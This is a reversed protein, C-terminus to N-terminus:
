GDLQGRVTYALSQLGNIKTDLKDKPGGTYYRSANQWHIGAKSYIEINSTFPTLMRYTYTM